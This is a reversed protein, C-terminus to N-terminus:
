TVMLLKNISNLMNNDLAFKPLLEYLELYIASFSLMCMTGTCLLHACFPRNKHVSPVTRITDQPCEGLIDFQSDPLLLIM